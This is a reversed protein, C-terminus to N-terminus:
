RTSTSRRTQKQKRLRNKKKTHTNYQITTTHKNHTITKSSTTDTTHPVSSRSTTDPTRSHSHWGSCSAQPLELGRTSVTRQEHRWPPQVSGTGKQISEAQGEVEDGGRGLAQWRWRVNGSGSADKDHVIKIYLFYVVWSMKMMICTTLDPLFPPPICTM